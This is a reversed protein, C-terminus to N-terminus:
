TPPRGPAPRWPRPRRTWTSGCPEPLTVGISGAIMAPADAAIKAVSTPTRSMSRNAPRGTISDPTFRAMLSGALIISSATAAALSGLARLTLPSAEDAAALAPPLWSLTPLRMWCASIVPTEYMIGNTAAPPRIIASPKAM